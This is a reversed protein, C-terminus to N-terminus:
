RQWGASSCSRRSFRDSLWGAFLNTIAKTLGFAAVFSVAATKSAIGFDEEALLPLITREMGIMGGVFANVAVLLAFQRWNARLGLSIKEDALGSM